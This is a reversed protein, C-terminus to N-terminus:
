KIGIEVEQGKPWRQLLRHSGVIQIQLHRWVAGHDRAGSYRGRQAALCSISSPLSPSLSNSLFSIIISFISLLSTLKHNEKARELYVDLRRDRRVERYTKLVTAIEGDSCISQDLAHDTCNPWFSWQRLCISLRFSSTSFSYFPFFQIVLIILFSLFFPPYSSLIDICGLSEFM